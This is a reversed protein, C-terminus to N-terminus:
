DGAGLFTLKWGAKGKKFFVRTDLPSDLLAHPVHGIVGDLTEIKVWAEEHTRVGKVVEHSRTAVVKAGEAPGARLPVAKTLVSHEFWDFAEPAKAFLYPCVFESKGSKACGKGLVTDLTSWLPSSAELPLAKLFEGVGEGAGFGAQVKEDLVARVAAADKRKVAGELDKKFAAFSKDKSSEDGPLVKVPAAAILLSVLAFVAM